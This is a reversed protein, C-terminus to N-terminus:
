RVTAPMSMAQSLMDFLFHLECAMCGVTSCIHQSVVIRLRHEFYLVQCLSCVCPGCLLSILVRRYLCLAGLYNAVLLFVQMLANCFSNPGSDELGCHPSKNHASFDFDSIGLRSLQVHSLVLVGLWTTLAWLLVGLLARM